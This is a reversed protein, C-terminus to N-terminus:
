DARLAVMPDVRSARLAPFLCAIAAVIVLSLPAILSTLPDYPTIGFLLSKVLQVAALAAAFGVGIGALAIRLGDQMIESTVRAPAAGLALRIGIERSRQAVAYSMLGYLGIAALLLGLAGFFAALTATLREQLLVRDVIYSLTEIKTVHEYGFTELAANLRDLSVGGRVVFCKGNPDPQQLAAVYAASLNGDKLDYMRADAVIGVVELSLRHPMVGIRVHQGLADGAPFLRRALTESLIAVGPARSHDSWQFDRGRRLPMGLTEFFGPSVAGGVSQIGEDIAAPVAARAVREGGGVGGGAPKFLSVAVSRVGAIGKLRAVVDPYYTDNDVGKYGGVPPYSYAVTVDDARMGSPVARVQQLSRVLLGGTMVLILSLAVQVGVLLRGIRGTSTFARGNQQLAESARGHAVQWAPALSFVVGVILTLASVFAIVRGDPTINLSARVTYDEFITRVILRSSWSAFLAGCMAGLSAMLVGETLIQQALRWTGAGLALRVGMEHSRAATRALMLSALNVCALTVILLAIGFVIMLPQTFKHRLGPEIGKAASQVSLRTALFRQRQAAGFDPPVNSAKLEPWMTELAARAQTLSVGPRLRGTTRVWFSGRPRALTDPASGSLLPYATLPLIVDPEMTLLLGTFSAPAIGVITFPTGEVAIERGIAGLDGGFHRLWFAYSLVAVRNPQLASENVDDPTLLRGAFPPASLESYYNGSVVSVVGTTAGNNSTINSVTWSWGLVSSFLSQRQALDRFMAFTLGIEYSTDPAMTVIQVLTQPDRVAADRLLLGNLLSFIATNVGIALTLTVLAVVTFGPTRRFGRIAYRVDQWVTEVIPLRRADRHAERTQAVGGFARLAASRAEGADHGRAVGDDIALALHTEIEEAVRDDLQRGRFASLLRALLARLATM